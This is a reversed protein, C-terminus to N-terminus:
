CYHCYKAINSEGNGYEDVLGLLVDVAERATKSQCIVVDCSSDEAFGGDVLPDAELAKENPYASVSMSMSVGYENTCAAADCDTESINMTSNMYPTATYKYTTAPIETTVNGDGSIPMERGPTNEVRPTVTLHNGYLEEYDNSRAFIISGDTSVDKGVYVATCAASAQMSFILLGCFVLVILKQSSNKLKFM